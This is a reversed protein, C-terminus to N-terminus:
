MVWSSAKHAESTTPLTSVLYAQPADGLSARRVIPNLTLIFCCRGTMKETQTNTFRLSGDWVRDKQSSLPAM